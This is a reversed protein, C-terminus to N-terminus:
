DTKRKYFEPSFSFNIGYKCGRKPDVEQIKWGIVHPLQISIADLIQWLYANEFELNIHENKLRIEPRAFIFDVGNKKLQSINSSDLFEKFLMNTSSISGFYYMSVANTKPQIYFTETQQEYRWIYNTNSNIINELVNSLTTNTITYYTVPSSSRVTETCTRVNFVRTIDDMATSIGGNSPIKLTGAYTNTLSQQANASAILVLTFISFTITNKM